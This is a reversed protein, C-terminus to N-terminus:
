ARARRRAASRVGTVAQRSIGLQDAIAVDSLGGDILALVQDKAEQPLKNGMALQAPTRQAVSHPEAFLMSEVQDADDGCRRIILLRVARADAEAVTATSTIGLTDQDGGIGNM